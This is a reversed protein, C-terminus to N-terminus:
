ATVGADGPAAIPPKCLGQDAFWQIADRIAERAPRSRYGLETEARKSSFWMRHRSMRLGDVTMLPEDGGRLKAIQQGLWAFPILPEAALKVKPPKRGTLEAVMVLIQHLTLNEGGLVYCRGNQGKEYALLHGEAVDDVHVVNLGTDVYAPMKGRAAQLITRGTPTPKIDRPGIPAAPNVVVVDMDTDRAFELAAQQGRWKSQKYAGIPGGEPVPTEEDAEDMISRLGLAAVSSTHVFRGIGEDCAAQLLARTGEINAEAFAQPRPHWIRYEAAVHFVASCDEVARRLSDPDRLDGVVRDVDLGDLNKPDSTARTLVRVRCARGLLARAM